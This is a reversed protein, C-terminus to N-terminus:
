HFEQWFAAEADESGYYGDDADDHHQKCLKEILPVYWTKVQEATPTHGGPFHYSYLYHELFLPEFHVLTDAEGFLGGVKDKNYTNCCDFQHAELEEFERILQEDITFEQIGNARPSM